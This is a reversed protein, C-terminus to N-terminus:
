ETVGLKKKLQIIVTQLFREKKFCNKSSEDAYCMSWFYQVSTFWEAFSELCDVKGDGNESCLNEWKKRWSESLMSFYVYHWSEHVLMEEREEEPINQCMIVKNTNPTLAAGLTQGCSFQDFDYNKVTFGVPQVTVILM